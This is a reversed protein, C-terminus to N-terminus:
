DTTISLLNVIKHPPQSELASLYICQAFFFRVEAAYFRARDESFRRSVSLHYFIDGGNLYDM